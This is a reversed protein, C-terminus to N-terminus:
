TGPGRLHAWLDAHELRVDVDEAAPVRRHAGLQAPEGALMTSGKGWRGLEYQSSHLKKTAGWARNPALIGMPM